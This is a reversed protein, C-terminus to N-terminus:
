GVRWGSAVILTIIWIASVRWLLGWLLLISALVLITGWRRLMLLIAVAVLGLLTLGTAGPTWSFALSPETRREYATSSSGEEPV